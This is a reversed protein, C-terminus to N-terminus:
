GHDADIFSWTDSCRLSFPFGRFSFELRNEPLHIHNGISLQIADLRVLLLFLAGIASTVNELTADSFREARNHKVSNYSRYWSLGHPTKDWGELPSMVLAEPQWETAVVEIGHLDLTNILPSLATINPQDGQNLTGVEIAKGKAISEFETCARLLLEYARHSYTKSNAVDPHVYELFIAYDRLLLRFAAVGSSLYPKM